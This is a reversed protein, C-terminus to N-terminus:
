RLSSRERIWTFFCFFRLFFILFEDLAVVLIFLQGEEVLVHNM